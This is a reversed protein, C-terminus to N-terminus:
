SNKLWKNECLNQISKNFDSESILDIWIYANL